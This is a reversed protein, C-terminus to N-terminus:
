SAGKEGAVELKVGLAALHETLQPHLDDGADLLRLVEIARLRYRDGIERFDEESLKGM